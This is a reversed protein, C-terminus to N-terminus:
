HLDKKNKKFNILNKDLDIFNKIVKSFGKEGQNVVFVDCNRHQNFFEFAGDYNANINTFRPGGGITLVEPHNEKVYEFVRHNLRDNWVFYGLGVVDPKNNKIADILKSADKFLKIECDINNLKLFKKTYSAVYGINLPITWIGGKTWSHFLDGLYIKIM